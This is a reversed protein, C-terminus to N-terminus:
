YGHKAPASGHKHKQLRRAKKNHKAHKAVLKAPVRDSSVVVWGGDIRGSVRWEGSVWRLYHDSHWYYGPRGVVAYAGLGGDFVLEVADHHHKHRYGHAPAHPPPGHSKAYGPPAKAQHHHYVCGSTPSLLVVLLAAFLGASRGIGRGLVERM